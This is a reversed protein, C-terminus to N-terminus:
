SQPCIVAYSFKAGIIGLLLNFFLSFLPLIDPYHWAGESGFVSARSIDNRFRGPGRIRFFLLPAYIYEKPVPQGGLSFSDYRASSGGYCMQLLRRFPSFNAFLVVNM